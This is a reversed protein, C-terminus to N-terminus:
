KHHSLLSKTEQPHDIENSGLHFASEKVSSHTHNSDSSTIVFTVADQLSFYPHINGCFTINTFSYIHSGDDMNYFSVDGGEWDLFVGIKNPKYELSLYKSPKTFVKFKGNVYAIVWFNKEPCEVFWGTRKVTDSCVGLSWRTEPEETKVEVEWYHRGDTFYDKGLVSFKTDLEDQGQITSTDSDQPANYISVEKEDESVKLNPHAATADLSINM